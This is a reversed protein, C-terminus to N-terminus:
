TGKKLQLIDRWDLQDVTTTELNCNNLEINHRANQVVKEHYDTMWVSSAGMKSAM